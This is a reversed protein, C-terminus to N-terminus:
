LCLSLCVSLCVSLISLVCTSDLLEYVCICLYICESQCVSRHIFMYVNVCQITLVFSWCTPQSCKVCIWGGCAYICMCVYMCAYMCVYMCVCLQHASPVSNWGGSVCVKCMYMCICLQHISPVINWGEV